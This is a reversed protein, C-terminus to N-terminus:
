IYFFLFLYKMAPYAPTCLEFESNIAILLSVSQLKNCTVLQAAPSSEIAIFHHSVIQKVIPYKSMKILTPKNKINARVAFLPSLLWKSPMHSTLKPFSITAVSILLYKQSTECREIVSYRWFYIPIIVLKPMQLRFTYVQILIRRVIKRIGNRKRSSRFTKFDFM